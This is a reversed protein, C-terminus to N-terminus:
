NLNLVSIFCDLRTDKASSSQGTQWAGQKGPVRGARKLTAKGKLGAM